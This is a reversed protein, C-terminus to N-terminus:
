VLGETVDVAPPYHPLHLLIDDDYGDDKTTAHVKADNLSHTEFRLSLVVINQKINFLVYSLRGWCWWWRNEM